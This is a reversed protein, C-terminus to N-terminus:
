DRCAWNPTEIEDGHGLLPVQPGGVQGQHINVSGFFEKALVNECMGEIMGGLKLGSPGAMESDILLQGFICLFYTQQIAAWSYLLSNRSRKPRTPRVTLALSAAPPPRSNDSAASTPPSASEAAMIALIDSPFSYRAVPSVLMFSAEDLDCAIRVKLTFSWCM